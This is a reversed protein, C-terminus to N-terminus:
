CTRAHHTTRANAASLPLPAARSLCFVPFFLSASRGNWMGSNWVPLAANAAASRCFGCRESELAKPKCKSSRSTGYPRLDGARLEQM